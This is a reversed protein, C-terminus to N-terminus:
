KDLFRTCNHKFYYDISTTTKCIRRERVYACASVIFLFWMIGFCACVIILSIDNKNNM